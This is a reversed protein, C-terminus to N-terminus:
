RQGVIPFWELVRRCAKLLATIDSQDTFFVFHHHSPDAVDTTIHVAARFGRATDRTIKVGLVPETCILEASDLMGDRLGALQNAFDCLEDTRLVPGGAEVRAGHTEVRVLSHLWNGDWFDTADPFQRALVWLSLGALKLDPEGEPGVVQYLAAELARETQRVRGSVGESM